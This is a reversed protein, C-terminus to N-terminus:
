EQSQKRRGRLYFQPTRVQARLSEVKKLETFQIRPIRYKKALLSYMGHMDKQTQTVESLMINELEM